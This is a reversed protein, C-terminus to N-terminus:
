VAAHALVSDLARAVQAPAIDRMFLACHACPRWMGCPTAGIGVGDQQDYGGLVDWDMCAGWITIQPHGLAAAAHCMGSEGRIYVLSREVLACAERFTAHQYVCGPVYFESPTGSHVHQVWLLDPRSEVLERWHTLPWRLNAHKSWPEILVYRRGGAALCFRDAFSREADTLYIRARYDRAHFEKNFTWGTDETFPYVIYPRVHPGNTIWNFVGKYPPGEDPRVIAPNGEWIPHWRHQGAKDLIMSRIGQADWVVQAQGAALIEDGWGM